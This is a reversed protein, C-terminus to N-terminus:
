KAQREQQEVWHLLQLTVEGGPEREGALWRSVSALPAKPNLAEALETKKGPTTTAKRLRELLGPLQVKVDGTRDSMAADTLHEKQLLKEIRKSWDDLAQFFVPWSREPIQDKHREFLAELEARALRDGKSVTALRVEHIAQSQQVAKSDILAQSVYLEYAKSFLMEPTPVCAALIGYNGTMNGAEKFLWVLSLQFREKIRWALDFRVPARALEYSALRLPEVGIERAFAARTLQTSKRFRHLRECIQREREPMPNKRPM